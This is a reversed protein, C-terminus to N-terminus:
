HAASRADDDLGRMVRDCNTVALNAAQLRAYALLEASTGLAQQYRATQREQEDLAARLRDVAVEDNM